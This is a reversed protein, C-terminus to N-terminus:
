EGRHHDIGAYARIFREIRAQDFEDFKDIRGWATLAITHDMGPYPALITHEYKRVIAELKSAVDPCGDACNYQVIVGGDELNHIQLEKPIPKDHVGWNALEQVHPGSTPPDSNYPAHPEDVSRIHQNGMDAVATGIQEQTAQTYVLFAIVLLAIAGLGLLLVRELRKRRETRARQREKETQRSQRQQAKLEKKSMAETDEVPTKLDPDHYELVRRHRRM